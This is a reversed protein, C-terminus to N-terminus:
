KYIEDDLNDREVEEPVRHLIDNRITNTAAKIPTKKANKEPFEFERSEATV